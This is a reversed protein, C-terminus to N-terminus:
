WGRLPAASVAAVAARAAVAEDAADGIVPLIRAAAPHDAAWWLTDRYFEVVAVVDDIGLLREVVARGIGRGGGTVM